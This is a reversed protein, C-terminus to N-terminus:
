LVPVCTRKRPNPETLALPRLSPYPALQPILISLNYISVLTAANSEYVEKKGSIFIRRGSFFSFNAIVQENLDCNIFKCENYEARELSNKNEFSQNNIINM